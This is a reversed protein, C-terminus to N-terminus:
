RGSHIPIGETEIRTQLIGVDLEHPAKGARISLSAALGAIQGTLAVAPILRAVHWAYGEASICRGAVLLNRLNPPLLAGYPIEWLADVARCDSVIGISDPCSRNRSKAKVTDRGVIRRGRRFQPLLPVAVAYENERGRDLRSQDQAIKQRAVKRSAMVFASVESGRSPSYLRGAIQEGDGLDNGFLSRYTAVRLASNMKVAEQALDLSAHQDLFTPYSGQEECPVGSRFAIDADGTCDVFRMALLGIRGSKNEVEVSALGDDNLVPKCALTDLWLDVGSGELLEDLSFIFSHPSYVTMYREDLNGQPYLSACSYSPDWPDKDEGGWTGPIRGPGYKISCKLLEEAIGFTVQKGKGDCLPFFIPVLGATALGGWAITKEVLAVSHGSRASQLAAAVGALGGGIVVIEYRKEM